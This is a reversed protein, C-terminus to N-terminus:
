LPCNFLLVKETIETLLSHNISKPCTLIPNKITTHLKGFAILEFLLLSQFPSEYDQVFAILLSGL